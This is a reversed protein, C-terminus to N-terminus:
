FRTQLSSDFLSDVGVGRRSLEALGDALDEALLTNASITDVAEERGGLRDKVAEYERALGGTASRRQGACMVLGLQYLQEQELRSLFDRLEAAEPPPPGDGDGPRVLPYDPHRKPLEVDWYDRVASALEIVHGAVESLKM